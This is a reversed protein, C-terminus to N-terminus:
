RPSWTDFVFLRRDLAVVGDGLVNFLFLIPLARAHSKRGEAM